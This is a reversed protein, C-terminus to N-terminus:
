IKYWLCFRAPERFWNLITTHKHIDTRKAENADLNADSCILNKRVPPKIATKEVTTLYFASTAEFEM